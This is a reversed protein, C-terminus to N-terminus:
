IVSESPNMSIEHLASLKADISAESVDHYSKKLGEWLSKPDRLRIVSDKCGQDTNILVYALDM